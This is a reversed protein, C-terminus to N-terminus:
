MKQISKWDLPGMLWTSSNRNPASAMISQNLDAGGAMKATMRVSTQCQVGSKKRIRSEPSLETGSFGTRAATIRPALGRWTKQRTIMGVRLGTMMTAKTMRAMSTMLSKSSTKMSVRPPGPEEVSVMLRYM